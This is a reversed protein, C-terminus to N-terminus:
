APRRINNTLRRMAESKLPDTVVRTEIMECKPCEFTQKESQCGQLVISTLNM